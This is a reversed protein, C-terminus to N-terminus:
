NRDWFTSEGNAQVNFTSLENLLEEAKAGNNTRLNFREGIDQEVQFLLPNAFSVNRFGYNEGTQTYIRTHLKWPGERVGSVINAGDTYFFKFEPVAGPFLAPALVPALDRGDITRGDPLPEGGLRFITPLLDLTSAPEMSVRGPAIVGPWWFVGPVRVGGEWGSGKGDRFPGSDGVNLRELTNTRWHIWPGNDSTFVVLTNQTLDEAVLADLVRSLSHDLEEIIDGYTGRLSRGAFDPNPFLPLHPM